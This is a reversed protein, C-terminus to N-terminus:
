SSRKIPMLGLMDRIKDVVAHFDNQLIKKYVAEDHQWVEGKSLDQGSGYTKIFTDDVPSEKKLPHRHEITVSHDIDWIGTARGIAEWLDDIFLHIMDPPYIPWGITDLLDKSWVTAGAAKAPSMWGDNCTVFNYGKINSLLKLDWEKTIIFHDDNLLNVADYGKLDPYVRRLKDSMTVVHPETIDYKWNEPFMEAIEIYDKENDKYDEKDIIILGDTTTKSDVVSTMFNKLLRTRRRSPVLTIMNM